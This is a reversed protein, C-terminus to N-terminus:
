AKPTRATLLAVEILRTRIGQLGPLRLAVRRWRQANLEAIDKPTTGAAAL